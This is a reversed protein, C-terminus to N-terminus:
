VSYVTSLSSCSRILEDVHRKSSPSSDPQNLRLFLRSAGPSRRPSPSGPQSPPWETVSRPVQGPYHWRLFTQQEDNRRTVEESMAPAPIDFWRKRNAEQIRAIRTRHELHGGVTNSM